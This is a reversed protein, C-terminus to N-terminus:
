KDIKKRYNNVNSPKIMVEKESWGYKTNLMIKIANENVSSEVSQPGLTIGRVSLPYLPHKNKKFHTSKDVVTFKTLSSIVGVGTIIWTLHSDPKNKVYLLRIENEVQYQYPKFFYRWIYLYRFCFNKKEITINQMEAIVDLKPHQKNENAYSVPSLIFDNRLQKELKFQINIGSADDGYLRWMTLNDRLYTFSTIFSNYGLYTNDSDTFFAKGGHEKLYSDAYYCETSDNMGILATMGIENDKCIRLLTDINTYKTLICDEEIEGLLSKFFLTEFEQTLGFDDPGHSDFIINNRKTKIQHFFFSFNELLGYKNLIPIVADCFTCVDMVCKDPLLSFKKM